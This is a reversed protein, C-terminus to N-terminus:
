VCRASGSTFFDIRSNAADFRMPAAETESSELAVRSAVEGAGSDTLLVDLGHALGRLTGARSNPPLIVDAGIKVLALVGVLFWYGLHTYSVPVSLALSISKQCDKM